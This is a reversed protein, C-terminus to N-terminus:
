GTLDCIFDAAYRGPEAACRLLTPQLRKNPPAGEQMPQSKTEKTM